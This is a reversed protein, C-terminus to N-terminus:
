VKKIKTGKKATQEAQKAEQKSVEAGAIDSKINENDVRNDNVIIYRHELMDVFAPHKKLNEYDDKSIENLFANGRLSYTVGNVEFDVGAFSKVILFM